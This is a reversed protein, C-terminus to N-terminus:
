VARRSRRAGAMLRRQAEERNRARWRKDTRRTAGTGYLRRSLATVRRRRRELSDIAGGPVASRGDSRVNVAQAIAASEDHLLPLSARRSTIAHDGRDYTYGPGLNVDPYQQALAQRLAQETVAYDALAHRVTLRNVIAMDRLAGRDYSDPTPLRETM